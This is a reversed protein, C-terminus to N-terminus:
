FPTAWNPQLDKVSELATEGVCARRTLLLVTSIRDQFELGGGVLVSTNKSDFRQYSSKSPPFRGMLIKLLHRRFQVM